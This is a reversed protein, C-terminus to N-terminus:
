EGRKLWSAFQAVLLLLPFIILFYLWQPFLNVINVYKEVKQTGVYLAGDERVEVITGNIRYFDKVEGDTRIWSGRDEDECGIFKDYYFCLVGDYSRVISANLKMIEKGNKLFWQKDIRYAFYSENIFVVEDHIPDNKDSSPLVVCSYSGYSFALLSLLIFVAGTVM